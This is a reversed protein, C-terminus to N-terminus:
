MELNLIVLYKKDKIPNEPDRVTINKSLTALGNQVNGIYEFLMGVEWMVWQSLNNIRIALGLSVAISGVLIIHNQWLYISLVVLAAILVYNLMQVCLDFSTVLRMMQYDANLCNQMVKKAHKVEDQNKSFLKVTQINTYSDVVSGMMVSRTEANISSQRRLKPIFVCMISVYIVSWCLLVLMLFVDAQWLMGLMTCFYVLIHVVVNTSKLVVEQVGASTQFIKQSLRGAFDNNFFNLSQKLLHRHMRFKIQMSFNPRVVQNLFLHHLCLVLPLFFLTLFLFLIVTSGSKKWYDQSSSANFEDVFLGIFYFFLAEGAAICASLISIIILYKWFGKSYYRIFGWFKTPPFEKDEKPFAEVRKEFFNWM